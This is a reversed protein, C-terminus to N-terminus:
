PEIDGTRYVTVEGYRNLRETEKEADAGSVAVYIFHACSKDADSEIFRDASSMGDRVFPSSLIEPLARFIDERNEIQFTVFAGRGYHYWGITHRIGRRVAEHSLSVFLETERDAEGPDLDEGAPIRKDLIMMLSNEVPLGPERVILEDLKGSLKWHITKMNDGAVYSRLGFTESTDGGKKESSYRYSEMDYHSVSEESFPIERIVPMVYYETQVGTERKKSFVSLPDQVCVHELRVDTRGCYRGTLLFSIEREARPPLALSETQACKEGTLINEASIRLSCRFVPLLSRNKVRLKVSATEAKEGQVDGSFAYELDKGTYQVILVAAFTYLLLLIILFPPFDADSFFYLVAAAALVCFFIIKERNRGKEKGLATRRKMKEAKM